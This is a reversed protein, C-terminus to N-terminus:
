LVDKLKQAAFSLSVNGSLRGVERTKGQISQVKVFVPVQKIQYTEFAEPNIEIGSQIDKGLAAFAVQTAKFSDDKLGRMVLVANHIHAEQSLTVLSASPMSFSVFVLIKDEAEQNGQKATLEEDLVENIEQQTKKKCGSTIPLAEPGKAKGGHCVKSDGKAVDASAEVTPMVELKTKSWTLAEQYVKQLDPKSTSAGQAQICSVGCILLVLTLLMIKEEM